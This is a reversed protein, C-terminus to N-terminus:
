PQQIRLVFSLKLNQVGWNKISIIIFKISGWYFKVKERKCDMNKITKSNISTTTTSIIIEISILISTLKKM